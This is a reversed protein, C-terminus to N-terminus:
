CRSRSRPRSSWRERAPLGSYRNRGPPHRPESLRPIRRYHRRGSAGAGRDGSGRRRTGRGARSTGLGTGLSHYRRARCASALNAIGRTGAAGSDREESGARRHGASHRCFVHKKCSGGDGGHRLLSRCRTARGGISALSSWSLRHCGYGDCGDCLAGVLIREERAVASRASQRPVICVLKRSCTPQGECHGRSCSGNQDIGAHELTPRVPVGPCTNLPSSCARWTEFRRHTGRPHREQDGGSALGELIRGTPSRM